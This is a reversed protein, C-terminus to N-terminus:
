ARDECGCTPTHRNGHKGDSGLPRHRDIEGILGQIRDSHPRRRTPEIGIQLNILNQAICLTERLAKLHSTGVRLEAIIPDTQALEYAVAAEIAMGFFIARRGEEGIGLLVPAKYAEFTKAILSVRQRFLPDTHFRLVSADILADMDPAPPVEAAFDM